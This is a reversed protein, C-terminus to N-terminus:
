VCVAEAGARLVAIFLPCTVRFVLERVWARSATLGRCCILRSHFFSPSSLLPPLPLPVQGILFFLVFDTTGALIVALALLLSVARPPLEM